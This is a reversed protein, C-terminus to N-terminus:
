KTGQVAEDNSKVRNKGQKGECLHLRVGDLEEGIREHGKVRVQSDLLVDVRSGDLGLGLRSVKGAKVRVLGSALHKNGAVVDELEELLGAFGVGNGLVAGSELIARCEHLDQACIDVKAGLNLDHPEDLFRGADLTQRGM